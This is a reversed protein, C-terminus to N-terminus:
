PRCNVTSGLIRGGGGGGGGGLGWGGPGDWHLAATGMEMVMDTQKM